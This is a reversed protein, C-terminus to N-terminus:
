GNLREEFYRQYLKNRLVVQKGEKKILGAWALRYFIAEDQYGHGQVINTLAAKLEPKETIRRLYHRLHEGFPGSDETAQALLTEIEILGLAVAYLASRILFPHGNVLEMLARVQDENLPSHHRQNLGRVEDLNFDRLPILTAVNFPSQYPNDILLYPDTSSSLFLTMKAFHDDIVRDNNWIRLMGFFDARFPCTLMREVEDMALIFPQNLRPIIYGSLYRSCKVINTRPGSWYQHIAEPIGLADGIMLCFQTFFRDEDALDQLSFRQCDVFASPVGREKKIRYLMRRMLSSKGMQMPAQVFVTTAYPMTLHRWCLQDASREIYFRSDPRMIGYPPEIDTEAESEFAPGAVMPLGLPFSQEVLPLELLHQMTAAGWFAVQGPLPASSLQHLNQFKLAGLLYLILGQYYEQWDDANFLCKRAMSRVIKLIKLPKELAAVPLNFTLSQEPQLTFQHLYEQVLYVTEPPLGAEALIPPLLMILVETELRLLDHLTHGKTVTAFDIVRIDRTAPDVLVNELNLDGHVTSVKVPLFQHLLDDYTLLPNPLSAPLRGAVWAPISASRASPLNLRKLSVNFKKGLAQRVHGILLDHRTATVEADIAAIVQGVEYDDINPVNMLRLRYSVPAQEDSAPPINLTLQHQKPNVKILSFGKLRVRDGAKFEARPLKRSAEILRVPEEASQDLPRMMLNVPLLRDYDAQMQYVRNAQNDLWWNWGMAKFLRHELVWCLDDIGNKLYYDHLSRVEFTGSGVLAYHLGGWHSGNPFVPLTELQAINPLTGKVLTQYAEWEDRILGAPAIKVATPVFTKGGAAILRVRFARSGSFGRGFEGEVAVQSYDQFMLRLVTEIDHTLDINGAVRIDPQNTM